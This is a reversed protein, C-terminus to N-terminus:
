STRKFANWFYKNLNYDNVIAQFIYEPYFWDKYYIGAKPVTELENRDALLIYADDSM